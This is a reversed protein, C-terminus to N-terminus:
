ISITFTYTKKVRPERAGPQVDRLISNQRFLSLVLGILTLELVNLANSETVLPLYSRGVTIGACNLCFMLTQLIMPLLVSVSFLRGFNTRQRLCTRLGALLFATELLLVGLAAARGYDYALWTFTYGIERVMDPEYATFEGAGPGFWQTAALVRRIALALYGEDGAYREPQLLVEIRHPMKLLYLVALGLLVGLVLLCCLEKRRVGLLGRRIATLLLLGATLTLVALDTISPVLLCLGALVLYGLGCALLGKAGKGRMAYVLLAFSVPLAILGLWSGYWFGSIQMGCLLQTGAPVLAFLCASALPHRLLPSCDWFCALACCVGGVLLGPLRNQVAEAWSEAALLSVSVGVAALMLILAMLGWQPQPRHLRDLERGVSVPDGMQRVAEEEAEAQGMGSALCADRQDELHQRLERTVAPRARKWRIQEEVQRLYREMRKEEAM